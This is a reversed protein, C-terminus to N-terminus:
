RQGEMAMRCARLRQAQSRAHAHRARKSEVERAIVRSGPVVLYPELDLITM